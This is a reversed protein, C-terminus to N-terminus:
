LHQAPPEPMQVRPISSSAPTVHTWSAPSAAPPPPTSSLLTPDAGILHHCSSLTHGQQISHTCRNTSRVSSPKAQSDSAAEKPTKKPFDWSQVEAFGSASGDLIGGETHRQSGLELSCGWWSLPGLDAPSVPQQACVGSRGAEWAM